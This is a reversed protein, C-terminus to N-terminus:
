NNYRVWIMIGEPSRMTRVQLSGDILIESFMQLKSPYRWLVTIGNYILSFVRPLMDSHHHNWSKNEKKLSRDRKWPAMEPSLTEFRSFGKQIGGKFCIRLLTHDLFSIARYGFRTMESRNDFFLASTSKRFNAKVGRTDFNHPLCSLSQFRVVRTCTLPGNILIDHTPQWSLKPWDDELDM